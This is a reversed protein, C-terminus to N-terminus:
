HGTIPRRAAHDAERRRQYLADEQGLPLFVSRRTCGRQSYLLPKHHRRRTRAAYAVSLRRVKRICSTSLTMLRDLAARMGPAFMFGISRSLYPIFPFLKKIPELRRFYWVEVGCVDVAVGLPVDLDHDNNATTAVVTVRHGKRVLREAAAAVSVIPGGLRYAPKYGTGAYLIKM